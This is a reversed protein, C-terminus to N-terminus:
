FSYLDADPDKEGALAARIIDAAIRSYTIGNGGFGLVAFCNKRGPVEGIRPLGTESAGFAGAWAFEARVDIGPLLRRLKRAITATKKPILADRAEANAFDEDEGGCLVRGDGTTRLYLYPDSAEWILCREPWLRRPQPRTAMAYTSVVKHGKMPVFKPFEYGSAFILVRCRITPGAKTAAVHGRSHSEVETVEVPAYIAAGREVAKRLYGSAMRRPDAAMDDFALLGASRRIGFREKLAARKLLVSELGTARRAECEKELEEADLVDGALYLSDAQELDCDMGLERTRVRLADVALRSRQWARDARERGIKRRLRILPEDIEYAILSTSAPTSGSVPGRRDVVTVEHQSSLAEAILAGSIGAGVILVETEVDRKLAKRPVRPM